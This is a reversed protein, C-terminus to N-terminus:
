KEPLETTSVGLSELKVKLVKEQRELEEKPDSSQKARRVDMLRDITVTIQEKDTM